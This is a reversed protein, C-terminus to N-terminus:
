LSHIPQSERKEGSVSGRGGASAGPMKRYKECTGKGPKRGAGGLRHVPQSTGSVTGEKYRYIEHEREREPPREGSRGPVRAAPVVQAAGDTHIAQDDFFIHAGFAKLVEKKPIGGLFFTEDIRVNWSLLTRVVREHAPASRSTVLATRIPIADPPFEQQLAAITKLFRAFPGEELPSDANRRENEEYAAFGQERFIRESEDTFLVADGDFAINIRCPRDADGTRGYVQGTGKGAPAAGCVGRGTNECIIGAATGSDIANQVEEEDASLFLDTHFAKLYPTLPAGGTLVSRTIGLGYREISHFIRLATDASNQSMLIVEVRGEQGSLANIALLARILPFGPGPDLLDKEHELQYRRYSEVGEKRFIENELRLDFLARSSVGIVLRNELEYRM